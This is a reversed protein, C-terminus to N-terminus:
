TESTQTEIVMDKIKNNSIDDNSIHEIDHDPDGDSVPPPVPNKEIEPLDESEEKPELKGVTVNWFPDQLDYYKSNYQTLMIKVSYNLRNLADTQYDPRNMPHFIFFKIIPFADRRLDGLITAVRVDAANKAGTIKNLADDCYKSLGELLKLYPWVNGNKLAKQEKVYDECFVKLINLQPVCLAPQTYVNPQWLIERYTFIEPLLETDYNEEKKLNEIDESTLGPITITGAVLEYIWQDGENVTRPNPAMEMFEWIENLIIKM